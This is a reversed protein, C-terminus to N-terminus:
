RGGNLAAYYSAWLQDQRSSAWPIGNVRYTKIAKGAETERITRMTGGIGTYVVVVSRDHNSRYFYVLDGNRYGYGLMSSDVVVAQFWVRRPAVYSGLFLCNTRVHDIHKCTDPRRYLFHPCNCFWRNGDRRVLYTKKVLFQDTSLREVVMKEGM